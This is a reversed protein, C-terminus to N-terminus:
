PFPTAGFFRAPNMLMNWTNSQNNYGLFSSLTDVGGQGSFNKDGVKESWNILCSIYL